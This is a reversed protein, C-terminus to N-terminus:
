RPPSRRRAMPAARLEDDREVGSGFSVTNRATTVNSAVGYLGLSPGGAGGGGHAGFGGAGGVRGPYM